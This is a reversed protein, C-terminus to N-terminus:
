KIISYGPDFSSDSSSSKTPKVDRVPRVYFKNVGGIQSTVFMDNKQGKQIYFVREKSGSRNEDYYTSAVVGPRLEFDVGHTDNYIMTLVMLERQNPIRWQGKDSGDKEQSYGACVNGRLLEALTFAQPIDDKSKQGIYLESIEFAEPLRNTLSGQSHYVYEGVQNGSPRIANTGFGSVTFIKRDRDYVTSRTTNGKLKEPAVMPDTIDVLPRICRVYEYKETNNYKYRGFVGEQAWVTRFEGNTSSYYLVDNNVGRTKKNMIAEHPLAHFGNWIAIHQNVSPIYWRIEGEDIIENGNLDRNRLLFQFPGYDYEDKLKNNPYDVYTDWRKGIITEFVDTKTNGLERLNAGVNITNLYGNDKSNGSINDGEKRGDFSKLTPKYYNDGIIAKSAKNGLLEYGDEITEIGFPNYSPDNFREPNLDYMTKISKQKISLYPTETYISNKDASVKTGSAFMFFRDKVNVFKDLPLNNYYNEDVFVQVCILEKKKDVALAGSTFKGGNGREEIFQYILQRINLLNNNDKPYPKCKFIGSEWSTESPKGFRFWDVDNLEPFIQNYHSPKINTDYSAVMNGNTMPTNLVVNFVDSAAVSFPIYLLATEYHADFTKCGDENAKVVDGEAGPQQEDSDPDSNRAEAETIINDVGNVTVKFNYKTNRRVTYNDYKKTLKFNEKSFDGLHITYDVNATVKTGDKGPGEYTGHVVVYTSKAPAYKFSGNLGDADKIRKERLAQKTLGGADTVKQVNEPMYFQFGYYESNVTNKYITQNMKNLFRNEEPQDDLGKYDMLKGPNATGTWGNREFLTSSKSYNYLDYSIPVFTVGPGNVFFFNVQAVSRKLHIPFKLTNVGDNGETRTLEAFKEETDKSDSNVGFKGTMLISSETFNIENNNKIMCQENMEKRTLNALSSIDTDKDWFGKHWNAVAYIYWRGSTIQAEEPVTIKYWNTKGDTSTVNELDTDRVEWVIPMSKDASVNANYFYLMLKELKSDEGSRTDVVDPEPATIDFSISVPLGEVIEEGFEDHETCSFFSMCVIFIWIVSSKLNFLNRM